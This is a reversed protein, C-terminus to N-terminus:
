PATKLVLLLFTQMILIAAIMQVPSGPEVVSLAGTMMMKNAIVILEFWQSLRITPFTFCYLFRSVFYFSAKQEYLM